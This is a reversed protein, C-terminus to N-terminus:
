LGRSLLAVLRMKQMGVQRSYGHESLLNAFRHLYPGLPGRRFRDLEAASLQFRDIM